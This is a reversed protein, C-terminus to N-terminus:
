EVRELYRWMSFLRTRSSGCKGAAAQVAVGCAKNAWVNMQLPWSIGSVKSFDKACDKSGVVRCSYPDIEVALYIWRKPM